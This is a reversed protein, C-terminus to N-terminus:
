GQSSGLITKRLALKSYFLCPPIRYYLPQPDKTLLFDARLLRATKKTFNFEPFSGPFGQIATLNWLSLVEPSTAASSGPFNQSSGPFDPFKGSARPLRVREWRSALNTELFHPPPAKEGRGILSPRWSSVCIREPEMRPMM